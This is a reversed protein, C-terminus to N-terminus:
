LRALFEQYNNRSIVAFSAEPYAKRWAVPIKVKQDTWKIEYANLTGGTEEV